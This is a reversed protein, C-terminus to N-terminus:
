CIWSCMHANALCTRMYMRMCIVQLEHHRHSRERERERERMLIVSKSAKQASATSSQLTFLPLKNWPGRLLDIGWLICHRRGRRTRSTQRSCCCRAPARRSGSRRPPSPGEKAGGEGAEGGEDARRARRICASLTPHTPLRQYAHM